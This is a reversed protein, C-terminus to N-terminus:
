SERAPLAVAAVPCAGADTLLVLPAGETHFEMSAHGRTDLGQCVGSTPIWVVLDSTNVVGLEGALPFRGRLFSYEEDSGLVRYDAPQRPRPGGRRIGTGGRDRLQELEFSGIAVCSQQEDRVEGFTGEKSYQLRSGARLLGLCKETQPFLLHPPSHEGELRVDLYGTRKTVAGVSASWSLGPLGATLGSVVTTGVEKTVDLARDADSGGNSTQCAVALLLTLPWASSRTRM